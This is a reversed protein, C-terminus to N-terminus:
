EGGLLCGRLSLIRICTCDRTSSVIESIKNVKNAISIFVEDRNIYSM